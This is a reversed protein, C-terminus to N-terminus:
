GILTKFVTRPQVSGGAAGAPVQGILSRGKIESYGILTKFVIRPQVPGAAGAPVLGILSHGKNKQNDLSRRILATSFKAPQV